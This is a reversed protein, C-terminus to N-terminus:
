PNTNPAPKSEMEGAMEELKQKATADGIKALEQLHFRGQFPQKSGEARIVESWHWNAIESPTAAFTAPAAARLTHWVNSLSSVDVETLGGRADVRKGSLLESLLAMQPLSSANTTLTWIRARGDACSTLVRQSDPSFTIHNVVDDHPLFPTLPEGTEANWIRASKDYSATAVKRGDPSFTATTVHHKHVLAPTLPQGTNGDWIRACQDEGATVIQHGDPSFEAWSVGDKHPLRFQERATAIIWVHAALANFSRDFCCAVIRRSDPSFNVRRVESPHALPPTVPQGSSADWVRATGDDSATAVYRGDPSFCADRLPQTHVMAAGIKDGTRSDWVQATRDASATLVRSGDRNFAVKRVSNTHLLAPALAAGTRADWVQASADSSGTVLRSGDSSFAVCNVKAKHIFTEQHAGNASDWLDAHGRDGATLVRKGDPSFQAEAVSGGCVMTLTDGNKRDWAWLRATGDRSGTLLFYGDKSFAAAQLFGGHNLPPTVPEGTTADWVRATNDFSATAVHAADPTFCAKWVLIDHKLPPCLQVGTDPNWIRATSDYGMTLVSRSDPSFAAGYIIRGHSMVPGVKEGAPVEWAQAVGSQAATVVRSGEVNFNAQMLSSRGRLPGGEPLGTQANWVQAVGDFSSTLLKSGDLSYSVSTIRYRHQMLKSVSQKAQIDWVVASGDPSTGPVWSAIALRTGDPSFAAADVSRGNEGVRGLSKATSTDWLEAFGYEWGGVAPDGTLTLLRKSDPSFLVNHIQKGIVIPTGVLEGTELNWIRAIGSSTGTAAMKGDPSLQADNVPGEHFWIHVLRPCQRLISDLRLRHLETADPDKDMRSAELLWPLSGFLDGDDMRKVGNAVFSNILRHQSQQANREARRWQSLVGAAGLLLALAIAGTLAAITPRRRITKVVREWAGAPRAHIPEHRLARDLDQALELASSYRQQPDRELCKLCITELDRSVAPNLASPRPPEEDIVKRLTAVASEAQFPPRGTLLEFLIAGLSYVDTATTVQRGKGAAQEPSMYNATGMVAITQTPSSGSEILKALGFDTLLPEGQQNLLINTPKLDRHLIGREHAYHVARAIQSTLAAADLPTYPKGPKALKEALNGGEVYKMTFYQCGGKEGVEYIPVINPHDLRAVAEAETHFRQLEIDTALQGASIMKLAVLRNLSKQRALYVVGMGGRAVERVLEYDGLQFLFGAPAPSSKDRPSHSDSAPLAERLLCAPCLGDPADTLLATGCQPCTSTQTPM